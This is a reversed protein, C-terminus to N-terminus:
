SEYEERPRVPERIEFKLQNDKKYFVIYKNWNPNKPLFEMLPPEFRKFRLHPGRSEDRILIANLIIEAVDLMNITEYYYSLGEEDLSIGEKRLDKIETLGKKIDDEIRVLFGYQSIIDKIKKRAIKAPIGKSPIKEEFDSIEIFEVKEAYDIAREGAIKGFVQTDLLSNGGPRNAGHQGGACEGVAFLGKLNTSANENIKVGGQFHQLANQIPLLDKSLDINYNKLWEIIQPNIVKLRDYPLTDRFIEKGIKESWKLIEEPINEYSLYSPNEMFNMFVKHGKQIHFYIALDIVKTPSEFSVPWHAGKKFELVCLNKKDDESLYDLLFEKGREDVIKPLSRFMSGSEAFLINPHCIGIQMFEINVLEAGARLAMAYGDGTMESTFVNQYYLEGAGGTALIFAKGQIIFREQTNIDIAKAGIVRNEKVILDYVMLNEYIEIKTEKLRRILAKSIEISTNPGVYCARPFESGDTLFQDIRGDSTKVFPVGISILYNVASESNKALIEALNYDSVEGGIRYIDMAHYLYNKEPPLTYSLTAHFAMRDSFANATVGGLGVPKKSILVIKLHPNKEYASLASRLGAGGAGIVIVDGKIRKM